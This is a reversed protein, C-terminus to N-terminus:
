QSLELLIRVASQASLNFINILKKNSALLNNM